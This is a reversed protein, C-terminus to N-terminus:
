WFSADKRVSSSMDDDVLMMTALCLNIMDNLHNDITCWKSIFEYNKVYHLDVLPYHKEHDRGFYKSVLQGGANTTFVAKTLGGTVIAPEREHLELSTRVLELRILSPTILRKHESVSCWIDNLMDYYHTACGRYRLHLEECREKTSLEKVYPFLTHIARYVKSVWYMSQAKSSGTKELRRYDRLTDIALKAELNEIREAM